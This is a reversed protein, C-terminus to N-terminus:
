VVIKLTNYGDKIFRIAAKSDAFIRYQIRVTAIEITMRSKQNRKRRQREIHIWWQSIQLRYKQVQNSPSLLELYHKVFFGELVFMFHM